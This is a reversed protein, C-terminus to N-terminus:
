VLDAIGVTLGPRAAVTRVALLVGAVFSVRDFSDHRITLGEGPNGFLIEQHAVLGTLRVSHIQVGGPGAGGRAGTVTQRETPDTIDPRGAAARAEAIARAAALSTGSPSDVKKDHHMEIIEVREFYPAAQAAFREALVAGISFNPAVLVHGGAEDVAVALEALEHTTFGTTGIVAAVHNALAWEITARAADAASFDVVVDVSTPDLEALAQCSSAGLLDIPSALDVLAVLTVGDAQTLGRGVVQGMRGAGGVIAVRTV